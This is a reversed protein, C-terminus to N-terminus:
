DFCTAQCTVGTGGSVNADGKALLYYTAGSQYIYCGGAQEKWAYWSYTLACYKRAGM